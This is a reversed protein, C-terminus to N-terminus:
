KRLTVKCTKSEDPYPSNPLKDYMVLYKLTKEDKGDLNNDLHFTFDSRNYYGIGDYGDGDWDGSLPM